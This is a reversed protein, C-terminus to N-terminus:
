KTVKVENKQVIEENNLGYNLDTNLLRTVEDYTICSASESNLFTMM